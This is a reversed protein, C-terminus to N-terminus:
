PLFAPNGDNQNPVELDLDFKTDQYYTRYTPTDPAQQIRVDIGVDKLQAQLFQFAAAPVEAWGILTLELRRGDRVRIGDGGPRWGAEDLIRRAEDPDFPVPQVLDAHPGLVRGPAMWRGPEANGAFVVDVYAERDIALSVAQRIAKDAGLDHPPQGTTNIYILQNRGVPARVINFDGQSELAPVSDPPVDLAMDVEGSKLAEIRTQADPLFRVEMRGVQPKEGWYDEFREVVATQGPLYDVVRFPGTGVPPTSDFHMGRPVIAGEPHLIQEPLRLNPVAPTIDVTYDDVMKVSDPGLTNVVTTLKRGEMQREAWSWMVDDATLDSGDHFKVGRRIHFRWTNPPVLEWSEALGPNLSYDSGLVILPEYVNVNLPYAFTTSEAGQGESPWTDEGAAIRVEVESPPAEGGGAQPPATGSGSCGVAALSFILCALLSKWRM